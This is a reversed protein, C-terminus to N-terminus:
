TAQVQATLIGNVFTQSGQTGGGTLAATTITVSLGNPAAASVAQNVSDTTAGTQIINNITSAYQSQRRRMQLSNGTEYHPVSGVQTIPLSM